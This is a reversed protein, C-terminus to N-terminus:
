RISTMAFRPWHKVEDVPVILPYGVIEQVPASSLEHNSSLDAHGQLLFDGLDPVETEWFGRQIAALQEESIRLTSAPQYKSWDDM